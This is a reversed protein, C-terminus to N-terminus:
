EISKLFMEVRKRNIYPEIQKQNLILAGIELKDGNETLRVIRAEFQVVVESDLGTVDIRDDVQLEDAIGERNVTIGIGNESINDVIGVIEKNTVYILCSMGSKLRSYVRREGSMITGGPCIV